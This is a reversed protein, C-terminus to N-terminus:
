RSDRKKKRLIWFGGSGKEFELDFTNALLNVFANPDDSRIRGGVRLQGIEEDELILRQGFHEEFYNALEQLSAGGLKVLHEQWALLRGMRAKNLREVLISGAPAESAVTSAPVVALEGAEVMAESADAALRANVRVRGETVLVEVQSSLLNVNFSTGVARLRVNEVVVVFPRTPDKKVDFHAEGRRLRIRREAADFDEILEANSNLRVVSGDSLALQQPGSIVTVPDVPKRPALGHWWWAGGLALAAAAPVLLRAMLRRRCRRQCLEALERSAYSDPARDLLVWACEIRRMTDGHSPDAALWLEFEVAETASLGRDRRITWRVAAAHIPNGDSEEADASIM